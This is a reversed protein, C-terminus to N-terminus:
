GLTIGCASVAALLTATEEPSPVWGPTIGAEFEAGVEDRLCQIDEDSFLDAPLQFAQLAIAIPDDDVEGGPPPGSDPGAFSLFDVGCVDRNYADMRDAAAGISPDEFAAAFETNNALAFLDWSAENGLEVFRRYAALVTDVDDDIESPAIEAMEEFLGVTTEFQAQIEAPTATLFNVDVPSAESAAQRIRDCWVSGSDGSVPEAATTTTTDAAVDGEGAATTTTTTAATTADGGSDDGGCAGAVLALTMIIAVFRYRRFVLM